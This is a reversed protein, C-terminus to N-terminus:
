LVPSSSKIARPRCPTGGPTLRSSIIWDLSRFCPRITTGASTSVISILRGEGDWIRQRSQHWLPPFHRWSQDLVDPATGPEKTEFVQILSRKVGFVPDSDLYFSGEAFIHTVLREEYGVASIMFHVHAPWYPHRGTAALLAGVPGDDPIPCYAPMVTWFDFRGARDTHFTARLAPGGLDTRQVGYFSDQDASWVEVVAGSM